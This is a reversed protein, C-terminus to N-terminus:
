SSCHSPGTRPYSTFASRSARARSSDSLDAWGQPYQTHDGSALVTAGHIIQYGDQNYTYGGSSNPARSIYPVVCWSSGAATCNGSNWDSTEMNNSYAQYLYASESGTFNGSATSTATGMSFTRSTTLAPTVRAEYSAFGKFASNFDGAKNNSEDANRMVVEVKAYTKGRYFHMRVTYHMYTQGAADVHSGDIKVVARVPGNEEIIATSSPDNSSLYPNTCSGCSTNGGSPGMLVLGPSTGSAVLVKGNVVVQDFLNFKAKRITFQAVGTNVTVMAGNDTALYAGGFNGAGNTVSISTNQGGATVDAQTDVLM